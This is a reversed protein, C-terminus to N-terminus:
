AGAWSATDEIEARRGVFQQYDRAALDAYSLAFALV